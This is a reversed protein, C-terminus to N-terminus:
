SDPHARIFFGASPQCSSPRAIDARHGFTGQQPKTGPLPISGRVRANCTRQEAVSSSRSIEIQLPSEATYCRCTRAHEAM